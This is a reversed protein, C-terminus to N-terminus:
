KMNGLLLVTVNNGYATVSVTAPGTVSSGGMWTTADNTHIDGVGSTKSTFSLSSFATGNFNGSVGVYSPDNANISIPGSQCICFVKMTQGAPVYVSTFASSGGSATNAASVAGDAIKLTSISANRIRVDDMYVIGNDIIFPKVAASNSRGVWFRDVDFGAEVERGDNYVGFGGILGNVSVKATYLAGIQTVKGNTSDIKTQLQTQASAINSNLTTQTTTLQNAFATDADTRATAETRVAAEANSTKAYLQTIDNALANDADTRTSRETNIAANNEGTKAYLLTIDNALVSNANTRTTREAIIAAINEGTKTYLQTIDLAQASDANVRLTKEDFIAAINKDVAAAMTNLKQVLAKDGETRKTIEEQVFVM